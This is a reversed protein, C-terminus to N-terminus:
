VGIPESQIRVLDGRVDRTIGSGGAYAYMGGENM